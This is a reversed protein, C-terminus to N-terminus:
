LEQVVDDPIESYSRETALENCPKPIWTFFILYPFLSLYPNLHILHYDASLRRKVRHWAKSYIHQKHWALGILHVQVLSKGTSEWSQPWREINCAKISTSSTQLSCQGDEMPKRSPEELPLDKQEGLGLPCLHKRPGNTELNRQYANISKEAKWYDHLWNEM